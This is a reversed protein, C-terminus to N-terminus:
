KDFKIKMSTAVFVENRTLADMKDSLLTDTQDMTGRVKVTAMYELTQNREKAVEKIVQNLKENYINKLAMDFVETAQMGKEDKVKNLIDFKSFFRADTIKLNYITLTYNYEKDDEKITGKYELDKIAYEEYITYSSDRVPQEESSNYLFKGESDFIYFGAQEMDDRHRKLKEGTEYKTPGSLYYGSNDDKTLSLNASNDLQQNNTSEDKSNNSKEVKSGCGTITFLAVFVLLGLVLKKKM